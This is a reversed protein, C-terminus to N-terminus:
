KQEDQRKCNAIPFGAHPTSRNRMQQQNKDPRKPSGSCTTVDTVKNGNLRIPPHQQPQAPTVQPKGNVKDGPRFVPSTTTLQQSMCQQNISAGERYAQDPSSYTPVTEIRVFRECPSRDDRAQGISKRHVQNRCQRLKAPLFTLPSEMPNGNAQRPAPKPQNTQSHNAHQAVVKNPSPRAGPRPGLM